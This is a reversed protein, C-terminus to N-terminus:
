YNRKYLAASCSHKLGINLHNEDLSLIKLYFNAKGISVGFNVLTPILIQNKFQTKVDRTPEIKKTEPNEM